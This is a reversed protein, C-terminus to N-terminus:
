FPLEEEKREVGEWVFIAQAKASVKEEGQKSTWNEHVVDIMVPMGSIDSENINPLFFKGESDAETKIQFSDLLELYSKNSRSNEELKAHKPNSPDPKKFRFFGKSRLKKGSFSGKDLEKGDSEVSEGKNEEGLEFMIDYVDAVFQQKVVVERKNLERAYAKYKGEPILMPIDQAPDYYAEDSGMINDIDSM